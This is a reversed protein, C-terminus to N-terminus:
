EQLDQSILNIAYHYSNQQIVSDKMFKRIYTQYKEKNVPIEINEYTPNEDMNIQRLDLIKRFAESCNSARDINSITNDTLLLIPKGLYVAFGLATSYHAIVFDAKKIETLTDGSSRTVNKYVDELEKNYVSSEPHMAVVIENLKFKDKIKLLNKEVKTYYESFYNRQIKNKHAFPILQDIFVASKNQLCINSEDQLIKNVDDSHVNLIREKKVTLNAKLPLNYITNCLYYNPAFYKHSKLYYSKLFSFDLNSHQIKGTLFGLIGKPPNHQCPITKTRFGLLRDKPKVLTEYSSYARTLYVDNTIYIISEEKHEDVFNLLEQEDSCKRRLKLMLEDTCTPNGGHISTLDLLVVEFGKELLGDLDFIARHSNRFIKTFCFVTKM